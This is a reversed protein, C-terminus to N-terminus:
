RDKELKRFSNLTKNAVLVTYLFLEDVWMVIIQNSPTNKAAHNPLQNWIGCNLFLWVTAWSVTFCSYLSPVLRCVANSALSRLQSLEREGWQRLHTYPHLSHFPPAGGYGRLPASLQEPFDPPSHQLWWLDLLTVSAPGLIFVSVRVRPLNNDRPRTQSRIQKYLFITNSKKRLTRGEPSVKSHLLYKPPFVQSLHQLRWFFQSSIM